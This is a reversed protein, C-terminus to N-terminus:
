AARQERLLERLRINERSLRDRDRTVDHAARIAELAVDRYGIVDAELSAVRERVELETLAHTELAIHVHEPLSTM